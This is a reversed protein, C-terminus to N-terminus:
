IFEVVQEVNILVCLRNIFNLLFFQHAILNICFVQRIQVGCFLTPMHSVDLIDRYLLFVKVPCLVVMEHTAITESVTTDVLGESLRENLM